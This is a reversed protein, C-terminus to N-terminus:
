AHAEAGPNPDGPMYGKGLGTSIDAPAEGAMDCQKAHLALAVRRVDDVRSLWGKLFKQNAPRAQAIHQLFGARADCLWNIMAATDPYDQAAMTIAEISSKEPLTLGTCMYSRARGPGSNLGFDAVAYDLGSPLADGGVADWYDRKYIVAIQEQTSDRLQQRMEEYVPTGRATLKVGCCDAWRGITVGCRTPGGLDGPVDEYATGEHALARRFFNWFTDTAM